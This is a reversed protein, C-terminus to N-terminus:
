LRCFTGAPFISDQLHPAKSHPGGRRVAAKREALKSAPIEVVLGIELWRAPQHFLPLSSGCEL